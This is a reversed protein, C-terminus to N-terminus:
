RENQRQGVLARAAGHEFVGVQAVAEIDLGAVDGVGGHGVGQAEGIPVRALQELSLRELVTPPRPARRWRKAPPSPRCAAFCTTRAPLISACAANRACITATRGSVSM